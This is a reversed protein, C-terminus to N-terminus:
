VNIEELGLRRALNQCEETPSVSQSRLRENIWATLRRDVQVWGHMAPLQAAAPKPQPPSQPQRFFLRGVGYGLITGIVLVAYCLLTVVLAPLAVTASKNGLLTAVVLYAGLGLGLGVALRKAETILRELAATGAAESSQNPASGPKYDLLAFAERAQELLAVQTGPRLREVYKLWHGEVGSLSGWGRVSDLAYSRLSEATWARRTEVQRDIERGLDAVFNSMEHTLRGCEDDSINAQPETPRAKAARHIEAFLGKMGLGIM